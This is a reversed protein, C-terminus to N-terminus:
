KRFTKKQEILQKLQDLKEPEVEEKGYGFLYAIPISLCSRLKKSVM